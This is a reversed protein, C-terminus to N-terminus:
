LGSAKLLSAQAPTIGPYTKVMECAEEYSLTSERALKAAEPILSANGKSNTPGGYLLGLEQQRLGERLAAFPDSM